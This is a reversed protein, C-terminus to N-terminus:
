GNEFCERTTHLGQLYIRSHSLSLNGDDCSIDRRVPGVSDRPAFRRRGRGLSMQQGRKRGAAEAQGLGGPRCQAKGPGSATVAKGVDFTVSQIGPAGDPASKYAWM